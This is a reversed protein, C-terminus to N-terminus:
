RISLVYATTVGNVPKVFNAVYTRTLMQPSITRYMRQIRRAARSQKISSLALAVDSASMTPRPRKPDSAASNTASKRSPMAFIIKL